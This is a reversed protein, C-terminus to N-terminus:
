NGLGLKLGAPIPGRVTLDLEFEGYRVERGELNPDFLITSNISNLQAALTRAIPQPVNPNFSTEDVVLSDNGESPMENLRVTGGAAGFSYVDDGPGGFVEVEYPIGQINDRDLLRIFFTDNGALGSIQIEAELTTGVVQGNLLINYERNGGTPLLEFLDNGPTGQTAFALMRRSELVDIM